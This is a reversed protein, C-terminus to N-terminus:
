LKGVILIEDRKVVGESINENIARGVVDGNGYIFATDFLRFGVDIADKIAQM